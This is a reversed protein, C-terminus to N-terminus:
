IFDRHPPPTGDEWGDRPYDTKKREKGRRAAGMGGKPQRNEKKREGEEGEARGQRRGVRGRGRGLGEGKGVRRRRGSLGGGEGEARRGRWGGVWKGQGAQPCRRM